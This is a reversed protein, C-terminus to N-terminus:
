WTMASTLKELERIPIEELVVNGIGKLLVFHITEKERKKDKKLADIMRERDLSIRTPLKLNELLTGVRKMAAETLYGMEVSILSAMIMGLSVAEGHSIGTTTEIAHGFTHGFNLKRREGNEKEDSLVISTKILISDHVLKEIVKADLKLAKEHYKELFSFLGPDSISAYKVIEALGCRIEKEPLTKLLNTDCIVFDPQNFVGIMNKYGLLNVGNKGGVSADVQSLLTSAVFGFRIGRMFTSAVFGTVDCVVGGGIGVMLSSRDAELEVLNGYVAKVTHLNKIREGIGIEILKYPPFDKAYLRRVHPDTIIVAKDSRVHKRLNQLKQGIFIRSHGTRGPIELVRM